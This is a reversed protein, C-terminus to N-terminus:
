ELCSIPPPSQSLPSGRCSPWIPHTPTPTVYYTPPAMSFIRHLVAENMPPLTFRVDSGHIHADLHVSAPRMALITFGEIFSVSNISVHVGAEACSLPPLLPLSLVNSNQIHAELHVGAHRVNIRLPPPITCVM